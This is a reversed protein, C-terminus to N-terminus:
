LVRSYIVQTIKEKDRWPAKFDVGEITLNPDVHFGYITLIRRFREIMEEKTVNISIAIKRVGGKKLERQMIFQDYWRMFVEYMIQYYASETEPAANLTCKKNLWVYDIYTISSNVHRMSSVLLGCTKGNLKIRLVNLVPYKRLPKYKLKMKPEGYIRYKNVTIQVCVLKIWNKIFTIPSIM